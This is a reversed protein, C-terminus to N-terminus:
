PTRHILRERWANSHLHAPNGDIGMLEWGNGDIVMSGEMPKWGNGDIVMSGGRNGDIGMLVAVDNCEDGRFIMGDKKDEEKKDPHATKIMRAAHQTSDMGRAEDRLINPIVLRDYDMRPILVIPAVNSGILKRVLESQPAVIGRQTNSSARNPSLSQFSEQPEEQPTQLVSGQHAELNEGNAMVEGSTTIDGVPAEETNGAGGTGDDVTEPSPVADVYEEGSQNECKSIDRLNVAQIKGTPM